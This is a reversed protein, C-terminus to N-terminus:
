NFGANTAVTYVTPAYRHAGADAVEDFARRSIFAVCLRCRQNSAVAAVAAIPTKAPASPMASVREAKRAAGTGAGVRVGAAVVVGVVV